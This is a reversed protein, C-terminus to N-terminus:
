VSIHLPHAINFTEAECWDVSSQHSTPGVQFDPCWDTWSKKNEDSNTSYLNTTKSKM